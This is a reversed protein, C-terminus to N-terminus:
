RAALRPGGGGGGEEMDAIVKDAVNAPVEEFGHLTRGHIARGHSMSRLTTAYKYLEAEPVLARIVTKSGQSDMGQIKGRRQNLDGMIDGMFEEPTTIEVLM